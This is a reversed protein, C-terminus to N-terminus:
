RAITSTLGLIAAGVERPRYRMLNHGVDPFRAVRIPARGATRLAGQVEDLAARSRGEEDDVAALAVIPAEVSALVDVPRYAFM